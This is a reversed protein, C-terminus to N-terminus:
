NPRACIAGIQGQGGAGHSDETVADREFQNRAAGSKATLAGDLTRLPPISPVGYVKTVVPSHHLTFSVSIAAALKQRVSRM